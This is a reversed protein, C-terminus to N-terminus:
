GQFTSQDQETRLFYHLQHIILISITASKLNFGSTNAVGHGVSNRSIEINSDDPDFGAFYVEKLYQEFRRPLLLSKENQINISVVSASLNGQTPHETADTGAHYSRMIGEIRPFLLGTCSIPDDDLYREVARELIEIHTSFFPNKRWRELMEPARNKVEDIISDLKEDPDWESRAFSILGNITNRNLGAFPFWKSKLLYEWESETISFVEQFLM